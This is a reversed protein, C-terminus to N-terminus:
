KISVPGKIESMHLGGSGEEEITLGNRLNKLNISGSGDDITVLGGIDFVEMSGSGDEINVTGGVHQINLSGSGDNVKINGKVNSITTSGSGDEIELNGGIADIKLSGSGDDIEVDKGINSVQISGSGDKIKLKLHSPVSITLDIKPSNGWNINIRKHYSADAVLVARNGKKVLTLKIEEDYAEIDATVEIKNSSTTGEIVLFGAATELDFLEIDQTELTLTKTEKYDLSKANITMCGTLAVLVGASIFSKQLISSPSM